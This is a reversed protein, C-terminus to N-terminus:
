LRFFLGGAILALDVGDWRENDLTLWESVYAVKCLGDVDDLALRYDQEYEAAEGTSAARMDINGIMTDIAMAEAYYVWQPGACGSGTSVMVFGNAGYFEVLKNLKM